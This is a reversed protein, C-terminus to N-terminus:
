KGTINYTLKLHFSRGAKQVRYNDYVDQNTINKAEFGLSYRNGGPFYTFGASLLQQTPIILETNISASGAIGLFGDPELRSPITELYYERVLNYYSYVNLRGNESLVRNFNGNVGLNAFFYPTNRLRAGEKWQNDAGQLDYLRLSQWTFNGNLSFQKLVKLSADADLGYGQVNEMNQFQAYPSLVPVLLVMDQTRRYFTNVEATYIGNGETRYGLNFNVSREPNLNFNPVVWVGDGFLEDQEPLRNAAEFSFRLISRDTLSYKVANGIGWFMGSQRTRDSPSVSLAQWAEIGSSNYRYFKGILTNTLRPGIASELGLASVVKTYSAPVSLVDTTTGNFRAGFPDRGTREFSTIVHNFELTHNSNLSYAINSRSTFNSFDIDSLSPQRSEGTRSPNPTFNGYWDYVGHVTDRRTINITNYVLFQNFRLKGNLVSKRYTLSPVVSSQRGQIAGYPDTMLAPHQQERTLGFGTVSLKIEDAWTRKTLGFFAEAYYSTFANHFLSVRDNVQNRTVPDTVKVLAEYDNDSHNFFSNVGGFWNKVTDTYMGNFTARHTNFSALEYSVAAFPKVQKRSVLNVAGGLADAGLSVPLVGKYVEVRELMNVPVSSMNYGDRLYDLPIGDKFYRISKGQFGNLSLDTASGLGGTQRIRVGASRNILETITASQQYNERMAIVASKIADNRKVDTESQAVVTVEELQKDDLELTIVLRGKSVDNGSVLKEIIRFGMASVRLTYSQSNLGTFTFQGAADTSTKVGTEVLEVTASPIVTGTATQIRGAIVQNNQAYSSLVMIQLLLLLGVSHFLRKNMLWFRYAGRAADNM